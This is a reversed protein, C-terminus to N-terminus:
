TEFADLRCVKANLNMTADRERETDDWPAYVGAHFRCHVRIHRTGNAFEVVEAPWSRGCKPCPVLSPLPGLPTTAPDM